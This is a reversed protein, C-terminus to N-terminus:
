PPTLSARCTGRQIPQNLKSSGTGHYRNMPKGSNFLYALVEREISVRDLDWRLVTDLSWQLQCPVATYPTLPSIRIM